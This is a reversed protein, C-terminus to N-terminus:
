LLITEVTDPVGDRLLQELKDPLIRPLVIEDTEFLEQCSWWRMEAIIAREEETWQRDDIRDHGARVLVFHEKLFSQTGGWVLTQEGYWVVPGVELDHIGTEEIAERRAADIVSEGAELRGGITVWLPPKRHGKEDLPEPDIIQMLLLRDAPDLFVLRATERVTM